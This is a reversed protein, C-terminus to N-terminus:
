KYLSALNSYYQANFENLQIAKKYNELAKEWNELMRYVGARDHYAPSFEPNIGICSDLHALARTYNRDLFHIVGAYYYPEYYNRRFSLEKEFLKLGATLDNAHLKVLGMNL